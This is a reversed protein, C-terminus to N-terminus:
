LSKYEDLLGGVIDALMGDTSRELEELDAVISKIDRMPTPKFFYKSFSIEYGISYILL